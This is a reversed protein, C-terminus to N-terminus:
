QACAGTTRIAEAVFHRRSQWRSLEALRPARSSIFADRPDQREPVCAVTLGPALDAPLDKMSHVAIDAHGLLLAEEIEKIFLGKGGIDALTRDLIRDGTTTVHLEEFELDPFRAKLSQIFARTQVLALQSKRTAVTLTRRM